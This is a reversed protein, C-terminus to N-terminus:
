FIFLIFDESNGRLFIYVKFKGIGNKICALEPTIAINLYCKEKVHPFIDCLFLFIRNYTSIKNTQECKAWKSTFFTPFIM